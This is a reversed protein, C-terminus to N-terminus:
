LEDNGEDLENLIRLRQMVHLGNLIRLRQMLWAKLEPKMSGGKMGDLRALQAKQEEPTKAKMKAIYAIEKDTCDKPDDVKCPVNLEEDAFKKISDYDRGGSYDQGEMDGDKFYKITPYGSVDFKKCLSEGDATCDVDAILVSSSGAYEDAVQHWAPAM